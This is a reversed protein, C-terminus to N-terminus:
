RSLRRHVAIVTPDLPRQLVADATILAFSPDEDARAAPRLNTELLPVSRLCVCLPDASVSASIKLGTNRNMNAM